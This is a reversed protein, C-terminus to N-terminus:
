RELRVIRRFLTRGNASLRVMYLGPPSPAGAEDRGDWTFRTTGSPLVGNAVDRVRRGFLDYVSVRAPGASALSCVLEVTGRSPNPSARLADALPRPAPADAQAGTYTAPSAVFNFYMWWGQTIGDPGLDMDSFAACNIGSGPPDGGPLLQSLPLGGIRAYSAPIITNDADARSLFGRLLGNAIQTAPLGVWTGAFQASSLPLPFGLLDITLNAPATVFGPAVPAGVAPSYGHTTGALTGLCQGSAVNAYTLYTTTGSPGCSTSASPATCSASEFRLSGGAASQDLPDFVLLLGLDLYGDSDSDGQIRAQLDGNISFGSLPTDTIDRCGLFSVFVHPDRWDFDAFRFATSQAHAPLALVGGLMLGLLPLKARDPRRIM